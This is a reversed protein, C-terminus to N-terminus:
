ECRFVAKVNRTFTAPNLGPVFPVNVTINQSWSVTVEEGINTSTCVKDAAPSGPGIPYGVAADTVRQAILTNTCSVNPFCRVAAYRAGERAAGTYVNV